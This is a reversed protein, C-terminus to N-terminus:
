EVTRTDMTRRNSDDRWVVYSYAVLGVSGLGVGGLLVWIGVVPGAVLATAITAVGIAVFVVSGARHTRDWSRESSLTWPTRIGFFWSSRTKRLYNGVVLFLGSIGIVAMLGMDVERELAAMVAVVHVGLMFVLTAIGIGVYATASRALNQRRPEIRPLFALLLTLGTTILPLGLLGWTKSAFGDATGDAGWHVPVLADAPIQPWAWASIALMGLVVLAGTVLLPRVKM